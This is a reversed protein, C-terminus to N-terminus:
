SRENLFESMLWNRFDANQARFAESRWVIFYSFIGPVALDFLRVLHGEGLYDQVLRSRAMAIGHGQLAGRITLAVDDFFISDKPYSIALGAKDLWLNWTAQSHLLLPMRDMDALALGPHRALFAPSCVPFVQEDALREVAMGPVDGTGYVLAADAGEPLEEVLDVLSVIRLDRAALHHRLSPLRPMLWHETIAFQVALTLTNGPGRARDVVGYAQSFYDLARRTEAALVRGHLTLTIRNGIRQFLPKGAGEELARIQHSIASQTICLEEAALAFSGLRSAAEFCRLAQISPLNRFSPPM